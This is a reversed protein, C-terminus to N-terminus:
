KLKLVCGYSGCIRLAEATSVWHVIVGPVPRVFRAPPKPSVYGKRPRGRHGQDAHEWGALHALEHQLIELTSARDEAVVIEPASHAPNELYGVFAISAALILATKM